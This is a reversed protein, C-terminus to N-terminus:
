RSPPGDTVTSSYDGLGEGAPPLLRLRRILNAVCVNTDAASVSSADRLRGKLPLTADNRCHIVKRHNNAVRPPIRSIQEAQINHKDRPQENPLIGCATHMASIHGIRLSVPSRGHRHILRGKVERKLSPSREATSPKEAVFDAKAPNYPVTYFGM